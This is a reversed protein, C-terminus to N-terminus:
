PEKAFSGSIIPSQQLSHGIFILYGIPGRWGTYVSVCMYTLTCACVRVCLHVEWWVRALDLLVKVHVTRKACVSVYIYTLICVCVCACVSTGGVVCVCVCV